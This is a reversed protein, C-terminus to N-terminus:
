TREWVGIMAQARGMAETRWGNEDRCWAIFLARERRSPDSDLIPRPHAVGNITRSGMAAFDGVEWVHRLVRWDSAFLALAIREVDDKAALQAHLADREALVEVRSPEANNVVEIEVATQVTAFRAANCKGCLPRGDVMAIADDGCECYVRETSWRAIMGGRSIGQSGNAVSRLRIPLTFEIM